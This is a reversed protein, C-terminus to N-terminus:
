PLVSEKWDKHVIAQGTPLPWPSEPLNEFFEDVAVRASNRYPYFGYDDFVVVGGPAMRPWFWELCSKVSPYIDVDVHVFSYGDVDSVEAFTEPMFGAHFRINSFEALREMVGNLSTDSFDGPEHYDRDPLSSDPMGEFSDFLHLELAQSSTGSVTSAIIQATGGTYVGCEAMPRGHHVRAANAALYHLTFCRDLSVTLRGARRVEQIMAGFQSDERDAYWPSYVRQGNPILLTYENGRYLRQEATKWAAYWPKRLLKTVPGLAVSPM